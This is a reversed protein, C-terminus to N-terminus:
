SAGLLEDPRAPVSFDVIKAVASWDRVQGAAGATGSVKVIGITRPEGHPSLIADARVVGIPLPTAVELVAAAVRALEADGIGDLLSMTRGNM